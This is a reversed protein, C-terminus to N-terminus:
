PIAQGNSSKLISEIEGMLLQAEPQQSQLPAEPQTDPKSEVDLRLECPEDDVPKCVDQDNHLKCFRAGGKVKYGCTKKSGGGRLKGACFVPDNRIPHVGCRGDSKAKNACPLKSKLTANCLHSNM